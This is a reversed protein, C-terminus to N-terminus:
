TKRDDVRGLVAERIYGGDNVQIKKTWGIIAAKRERQLERAPTWRSFLSSLTM